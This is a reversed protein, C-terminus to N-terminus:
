SKQCKCGGQLSKIKDIIKKPSEKVYFANNNKDLIVSCGDNSEYIASIHSQNYYVKAGDLRTLEIFDM